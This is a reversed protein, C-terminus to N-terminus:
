AKHLLARNEATPTIEMQIEMVKITDELTAIRQFIDGFTRRSWQTLVSKIRKMKSHIVTFPNGNIEEGNWSDEVVKKFESYKTWFNLFKFPKTVTEQLSNGIVHLPCSRVRARDISKFISEEEIRGNWWTYSSGKFKIGNLACANTCQVFDVIETQTVPLGGLKEAEDIITNFNGGVLWPITSNEAIEELQEWLELRELASCRAYVVTNRFYDNSGRKKFRITVQQVYDVVDHEEWDEEWFIWIKAGKKSKGKLHNIQRPSLDCERGIDDINKDMTEDEEREQLEIREQESLKDIKPPPITVYQSQSNEEEGMHNDGVDPHEETDVEEGIGRVDKIASQADDKDM